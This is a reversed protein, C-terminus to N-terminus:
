CPKVLIKIKEPASLLQNFGKEVIDELLITDSILQNIQIQKNKLAEIALKFDNTAMGYIGRITIENVAILLPSVPADGNIISSLIVEGGRRILRIATQFTQPTGACEFILQPGLGENLELVRSQLDLIDEFDDPNLAENAGMELALKMRANSKEIVTIQGAGGWKLCAVTLLGIPGCGIITVRSGASFSSKRISHLAVGAPQCLAADKLSVDVPVKFLRITPYTVKVYEAFAGDMSPNLGITPAKPSICLTTRGINCYYCEHCPLQNPFVAVADGVEFESINQGVKAVTATFEHGMITGPSYMGKQFASVDSGCIGCYAVKVLIDDPGIEPVPREELKIEKIGKLVATKM